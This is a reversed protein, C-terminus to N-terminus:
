IAKRPRTKKGTVVRQPLFLSADVNFRKTLRQIHVKSLSRKGNLVMSAATRSGIVKGLETGNLGNEEMLHRLIDVPEMASLDELRRRQQFDHVLLTLTDLYDQEDVTLEEEPTNGVIHRLTRSAAEHDARTRIPRLPFDRVLDLFGISANRSTKM